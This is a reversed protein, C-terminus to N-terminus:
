AIWCVRRVRAKDAHKKNSFTGASREKSKVDVYYATYRPRGTGKGLRKRLVGRM